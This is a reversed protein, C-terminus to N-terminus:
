TNRVSHVSTVLSAYYLCDPIPLLCGTIPVPRSILYPINAVLGIHVVTSSCLHIRLEQGPLFITSTGFLLFHAMTDPVMTQCSLSSITARPGVLTQYLLYAAVLSMMVIYTQFAM